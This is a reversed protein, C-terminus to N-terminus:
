LTATAVNPEEIMGFNVCYLVTSAHRMHSSDMTEHTRIPPSVLSSTPMLSPLSARAGGQQAASMNVGPATGTVPSGPILVRVRAPGSFNKAM